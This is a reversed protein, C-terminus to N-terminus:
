LGSVLFFHGFNGKLPTDAILFCQIKKPNSSQLNKPIIRLLCDLLYLPCTPLYKVPLLPPPQLTKKKALDDWIRLMDYLLNNMVRVDLDTYNLDKEERNTFVPSCLCLNRPPLLPFSPSAHASTNVADALNRAFWHHPHPWITPPQWIIIHTM